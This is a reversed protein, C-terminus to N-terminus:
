SSPSAAGSGHAQSGTSATGTPGATDFYELQSAQCAAMCEQVRAAPSTANLRPTLTPAGSWISFGQVQCTTPCPSGNLCDSLVGVTHAPNYVTGLTDDCEARCACEARLWLVHVLLKEGPVEVGLVM